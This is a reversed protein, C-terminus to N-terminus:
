TFMRVIVKGAADRFRPGIDDVTPQIVALRGKKSFNRYELYIGYEVTYFLDIQFESNGGPSLHAIYDGTLGNRANTSRDTWRASKKMNREGMLAYYQTTKALYNLAKREAGALKLELDGTWVVGGNGAM